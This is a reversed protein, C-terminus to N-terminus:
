TIGLGTITAVSGGLTLTNLGLHTSFGWEETLCLSPLLTFHQRQNITKNSHKAKIGAYDTLVLLVKTTNEQCSTTTPNLELKTPIDKINFTQKSLQCM